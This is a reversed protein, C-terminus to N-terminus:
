FYVQPCGIFLGLQFDDGIQRMAALSVSGSDNTVQIQTSSSGPDIYTEGQVGNACVTTAYSTRAFSKQYAGVTVEAGGRFQLNQTIRLQRAYTNYTAGGPILIGVYVNRGYTSFVDTHVPSTSQTPYAGEIFTRFRVSGRNFAFCSTFLNYYDAGAFPALLTTSNSLEYSDIAYPDLVYSSGAGSNGFNIWPVSMKLLQLISTVREGICTRASILNDSVVYSNGITSQMASHPKTKHTASQQVYGPTILKLKNDTPQALEFGSLACVEVIVDITSNVSAPCTLPNVCYLGFFGFSDSTNGTPGPFSANALDSSNYHYPRLSTYPIDVSFENSERIDVIERFTYASATQYNPASASATTGNTDFPQFVVAFRGSHFETKVFRFTFRFGGRWLAFFQSFFCVPTQSYLTHTTNVTYSNQFQSPHLPHWFYNSGATDGTTASFHYYYAPVSLLFELSMEDMDTGGLGPLVELQNTSFLSLPMSSDIADCNVAYPFWTQVARTVPSLDIPNSWGFWSCIGSCIGAAWSVPASIESLFPVNTSVWDAANKIVNSTAEMPGRGTSKREEDIATSAASVAKNFFGQQSHVRCVTPFFNAQPVAAAAFEVDHFSLYVNYPCTTTGQTGAASSFKSYPYLGWKGSSGVNNSASNIGWFNTVSLYPVKLVVETQTGLDIKIHPLQSVACKDWTRRSVQYLDNIGTYAGGTPIWYLIYLGQNFRNPNVQLRIHATARIGFYGSIKNAWLTQSTLNAFIDSASFTQGNDTSQFLGKAIQIPKALFDKLDQESHPRVSTHIDSNLSLPMLTSATAVESDANFNTTGYSGDNLM